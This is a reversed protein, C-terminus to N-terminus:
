SPQSIKQFLRKANVSTISKIHDIDAGHIDALREAILPIYSSENRKGRYPVPPLYPADTELIISSLPIQSVTNRLADNKKYTIVGGLGMYFGVDIIQRAHEVTQDFCHFVGTLNGDQEEQVIRITIDIAARSHIVIPLSREKAWHIQHRFAEEQAKAFTQDWYLDVGIEGVAIVEPRDLYHFLHDLNDQWSADISCPHLGVMPYCLTPYAKHLDFVQDITAIDINPLLIKQIDQAACRNIVEGLDDKFQDVYIHAHTDIYM